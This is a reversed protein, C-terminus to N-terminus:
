KQPSHAVERTFSVIRHISNKQKKRAKAIIKKIDFNLTAAQAERVKRVEEVIHDIIM